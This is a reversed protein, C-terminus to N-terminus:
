RAAARITGCRSVLRARAGRVRAQDAEAWYKVGRVLGGVVQQNMHDVVRTEITSRDSM